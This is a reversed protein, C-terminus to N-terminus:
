TKPVGMSLFLQEMSLEYNIDYYDRSVTKEAMRLIRNLDTFSYFEAQGSLTKLEEMFHLDSSHGGAKLFLVDRFWLLIMDLRTESFEKKASANKAAESAKLPGINPASRLTSILDEMFEGMEENQALYLAKGLNGQALAAPLYAKSEPIGCKDVLYTQIAETKVPQTPLCVSRSIITALMDEKNRSLLIIVAYSPPEELTKLLANKGQDKMLEADPIIYIKRPGYPKEGITNIVQKRIEEVALVSAKEHTVTIIDLHNGSLAMKCSHCRNCPEFRGAKGRNEECLLARAFLYAASHKGTGKEGYLLYAHSVQDKELANKFHTLITDQGILDRFHNM